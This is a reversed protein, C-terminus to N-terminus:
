SYIAAESNNLGLTNERLLTKNLCKEYGPLCCIYLFFGKELGVKTREREREKIIM